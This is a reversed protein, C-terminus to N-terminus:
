IKNECQAMKANYKRGANSKCENMESNFTVRKMGNSMSNFANQTHKKGQEKKQIMAIVVVVATIIVIVVAVVISKNM